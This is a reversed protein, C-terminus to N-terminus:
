GDYLDEKVLCVWFTSSSHKTRTAVKHGFLPRFLPQALLLVNDLKTDHDNWKLLVFGDTKLIRYFEVFAREIGDKIETTTFHGYSKSMDSNAGVNVHPPDYVIMDFCDNTFTTNTNDMIYDPGMQPRIDIFTTFPCDKDFWIARKGATADLIKM